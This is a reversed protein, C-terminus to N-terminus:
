AMSLGQFQPFLTPAPCCAFCDSFVCSFELFGGKEEDAAAGDCWV